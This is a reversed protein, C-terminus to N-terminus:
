FFSADALRPRVVRENGARVQGPDRSEINSVAIFNPLLRGSAEVAFYRQHDQLTAILVERPLDLFRQEFAGAIPVPWEVLAAVEDLLADSILAAGGLSTAAETVGARIVERREEFDAIVRGQKRLTSAYSAPSAIRLAKPAHFRHGWSVHGTEVGLIRGPLVDRGFLLLTWHVPRVFEIDGDGWRM